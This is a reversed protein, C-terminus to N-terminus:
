HSNVDNATAEMSTMLDKLLDDLPFINALDRESKLAELFENKDRAHRAYTIIWAAADDSYPKGSRLVKLVLPWAVEAVDPNRETWEIWSKGRWSFERHMISQGDKWQENSHDTAIWRPTEVVRPAWYKRAVLYDVLEWHYHKYESRYVPIESYLLLRESQFKTELTDPSFFHRGGPTSFVTLLGWCGLAVVATLVLLTRLTFRVRYDKDARPQANPDQLSQTNAM